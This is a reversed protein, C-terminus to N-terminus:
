QLLYNLFSICNDPYKTNPSIAFYCDSDFYPCTKGNIDTFGKKIESTDSINVAVPINYSKGTAPDEYVAFLIERGESTIRDMLDPPLITTLDAFAQYQGFEEMVEKPAITADVTGSGYEMMLKQRIPYIGEDLTETNYDANLAIQERDPDFDKNYGPYGDLLSENTLSTINSDIMILNFVTPKYTLRNHIFSILAILLIVAIIIPISYYDRIYQLKQGASMNKLKATQEKIEENIM